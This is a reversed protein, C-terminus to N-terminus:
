TNKTFPEKKCPWWLGDIHAMHLLDLKKSFGSAFMVISRRLTDKTQFKAMWANLAM